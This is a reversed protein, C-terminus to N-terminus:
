KSGLAKGFAWRVGGIVAAVGLGVGTWYLISHGAVTTHLAAEVGAVPEAVDLAM